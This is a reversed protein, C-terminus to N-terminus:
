VTEGVGATLVVPGEKTLAITHEYHVSPKGDNTEVTWHDTSLVSVNGTGANVMPEVALVLGPKLEFDQENAGMPVFNPVQPDEHMERGIGHGVFEEVLGFGAEDVISEMIAAVEMWRSKRGLEEIAAALVKQGVSILRKGLEDPEGVAYTWAADGCWGDVRCGTDISVLDGESLVRDGPVGHVVEENVSICTVAPFLVEIENGDDDIGIAPVGKFLPIANRSAFLDEVAADIERTAIGPKLLRQALQHAEAVLAGAPRM